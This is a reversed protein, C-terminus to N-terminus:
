EDVVLNDLIEIEKYCKNLLRFTSKQVSEAFQKEEDSECIMLKVIEAIARLNAKNTTLVFYRGLQEENMTGSVAMLRLNHKQSISVGAFRTIFKCNNM